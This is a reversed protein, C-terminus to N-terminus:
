ISCQKKCGGLSYSRSMIITESWNAFHTIKTEKRELEMSGHTMSSVCDCKALFYLRAFLYLHSILKIEIEGDTGAHEEKWRIWAWQETFNTETLWNQVLWLAARCLPELRGVVVFLTLLFFLFILLIIWDDDRTKVHLVNLRQGIYSLFTCPIHGYPPTM